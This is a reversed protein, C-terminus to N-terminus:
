LSCFLFPLPVDQILLFVNSSEGAKNIRGIYAHEKTSDDLHLPINKVNRPYMPRAFPRPKMPAKPPPPPAAEEKGDEPKLEDARYTHLPKKWESLNVPVNFRAVNWKETSPAMRLVFEKM